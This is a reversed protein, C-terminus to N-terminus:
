ASSSHVTRRYNGGGIFEVLGLDRLRQLQKRLQERVYRNRPFHSAALPRCIAVLEDLTFLDDRQLLVGELALKTWGSFGGLLVRQGERRLKISPLQSADLRPLQRPPPLQDRLTSVPERLMEIEDANWNHPPQPSGFGCLILNAVAEITRADELAVGCEWNREMGGMTANASTVLARKDDIVYVKAHLGALSLIKTGQRALTCLADIDSAGLAFDRLDTRTLLTTKVKHSLRAALNPLYSGIYPSAVLFRSSCSQLSQELWNRTPTTVFPSM